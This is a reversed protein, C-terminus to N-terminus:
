QISLLWDTRWLWWVTIYPSRHHAIEQQLTGAHGRDRDRQDVAHEAFGFHERAGSNFGSAQAGQDPQHPLGARHRPDAAAHEQDRRGPHGRFRRPVPNDCCEGRHEGKGRKGVGPGQAASM